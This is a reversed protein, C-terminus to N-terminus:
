ADVRNNYLEIFDGIAKEAEELTAFDHLMFLQEEITRFVREIIGNSDPSKEWTHSMKIGYHSMSQMYYASTCQSGRDSRVKVGKAVDKELSGFRKNIAHQVARTVEFRDGKKVVTYGIIESNFIIAFLWFWGDRQNFFKKGDTGWM